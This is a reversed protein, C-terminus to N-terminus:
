GDGTRLLDGWLRAHEDPNPCERAKLDMALKTSMEACEALAVLGGTLAAEVDEPAAYRVGSLIAHLLANDRLLARPDPCVMGGFPEAAIREIRRVIRRYDAESM